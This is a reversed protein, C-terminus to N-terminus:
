KPPEPDGVLSNAILLIRSRSNPVTTPSSWILNPLSAQAHAQQASGILLALRGAPAV